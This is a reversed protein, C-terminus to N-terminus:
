EVQSTHPHNREAIRDQNMGLGPFGPLLSIGGPLFPNVERLLRNLM